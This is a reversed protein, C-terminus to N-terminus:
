HFIYMGTSQTYVGCLVSYTVYTYEYYLTVTKYHTKLRRTSYWLLVGVPKTCPMGFRVLRLMSCHVTLLSCEAISIAPCKAVDSHSCFSIHHLWKLVELNSLDHLAHRGDAVGRVYNACRCTPARSTCQSCEVPIARSIEFAEPLLMGRWQRCERRLLACTPASANAVRVSNLQSTHELWKFHDDVTSFLSFLKLARLRKDADGRVACQSCHWNDAEARYLPSCAQRQLQSRNRLVSRQQKRRRVWAFM